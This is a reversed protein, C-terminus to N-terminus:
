LRIGGRMIPRQLNKKHVRRAGSRFMKRSKAAALRKRKM